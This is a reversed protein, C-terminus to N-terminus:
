KKRIRWVIVMLVVVVAIAVAILLSLYDGSSGQVSIKQEVKLGGVAISQASLDITSTTQNYGEKTSKLTYNGLPVDYFVFNGKADTVTALTTSSASYRDSIQVDIGAQVSSTMLTVTANVVPFDNADLVRGSITGVNATTFTWNTSLANGSLDQGSVVVTYTTNGVLTSSPTFTATDGNWSTSGSVGKVVISTVSEDMSESFGVSINTRTSAANGTPWVKNVTPATTDVTFTVKAYALVRQGNLLTVNVTHAGDNLGEVQYSMDTTSLAIPQADDVGIMSNTVNSADGTV